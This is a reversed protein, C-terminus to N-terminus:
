AGGGALEGIVANLAIDWEPLRLAFTQQVRACDLVSWAPRQARTPYDLTTIAQVEPMRAILGARQASTLLVTAFGHWSTHGAATLHYTGWPVDRGFVGRPASRAM